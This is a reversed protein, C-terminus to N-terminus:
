GARGLLQRAGEAAGVVGAGGGLGGAVVAPLERHGAGPLAGALAARAPELLLEGAAAVGGGIVLLGPDFASVLTGLGRGLHRGVESLAATAAPDGAQALRTIEPGDLDDGTREAHLRRLARGSAYEEWCGRLGCPCSRGGPEYAVHGLEGAMGGAGRHLRGGVLFAAGIGTGLAVLAASGSSQAAGHVREGLLAANADNDLHVAVGLRAEMRERVEADRWALHPAFRVAGGAADVFGAVALGVAALPARGAAEEIASVLTDELTGDGAGPPPTWRQSRSLLRGHEDVLAALIKTGGVDLGVIGAARAPQDM